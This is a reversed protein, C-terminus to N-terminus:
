LDSYFVRAYSLVSASYMLQKKKLNIELQVDPKGRCFSAGYLSGTKTFTKLVSIRRM